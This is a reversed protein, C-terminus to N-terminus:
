EAGGNLSLSETTSETELSVEFESVTVHDSNDKDCEIFM